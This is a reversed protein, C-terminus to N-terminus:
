LQLTKVDRLSQTTKAGNWNVWARRVADCLSQYKPKSDAEQIQEQFQKRIEDSLYRDIDCKESCAAHIHPLCAEVAIRTKDDDPFKFLERQINILLEDHPYWKYENGVVVFRYAGYGDAARQQKVVM